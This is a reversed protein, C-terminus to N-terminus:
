PNKIRWIPLRTPTMMRRPLDTNYESFEMGDLLVGGGGNTLSSSM